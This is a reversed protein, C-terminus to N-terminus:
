KSSYFNKLWFIHKLKTGPLYHGNRVGWVTHLHVFLLPPLPSFRWEDIEMVEWLCVTAIVPHCSLNGTNAKLSGSMISNLLSVNDCKLLLVTQLKLIEVFAWFRISNCTKHPALGVPAASLLKLYDSFRAYCWICGVDRLSMICIRDNDVRRRQSSYVKLQRCSSRM